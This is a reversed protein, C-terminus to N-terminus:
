RRRDPHAGRDGGNRRGLPLTLTFRVGGEPPSEAELDGGHDKAIQRSLYLGLGTGGDKTTHFPRFLHPWVERPISPGNNAIEAVVARGDHTMRTRVELTTGGEALADLANKVLNLIIQKIGGADMAVSPLAPDFSVEVTIGRRACEAAVFRLVESLIEKLDAQEFVPRKVTAFDLMSRLLQHMREVNALATMTFDSAPDHEAALREHLYQLSSSIISLPNGLEHVVCAVMQGIAALKEAQFFTALLLASDPAHEPLGPAGAAREVGGIVRALERSNQDQLLIM